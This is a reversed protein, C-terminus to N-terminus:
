TIKIPFSKIKGDESPVFSKDTKDITTAIDVIRKGNTDFITFVLDNGRRLVQLKQPNQSEYKHVWAKLSDQNFNNGKFSDQNQNTPQTSQGNQNNTNQPVNNEGFLNQYIAKIENNYLNEFTACVNGMVKILEQVKNLFQLSIDNTTESLKQMIENQNFCSIEQKMVDLAQDYRNRIVQVTEKPYENAHIVYKKKPMNKIKNLVGNYTAMLEDVLKVDGTDFESKKNLSDFLKKRINVNNSGIGLVDPLKENLDITLEIVIDNELKKNSNIIQNAMNDTQQKTKGFIKQFIAKILRPIFLLIRKIMNENENGKAKDIVGEDAEQFYKGDHQELIMCRKSYVNSLSLLVDIEADNVSQDIQDICQILENM